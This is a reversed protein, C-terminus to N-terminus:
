PSIKWAFGFFNNASVTTIYSGAAGIGIYGGGRNSFFWAYTGSSGPVFVDNSGGSPGTFNVALWGDTNSPSIPVRLGGHANLIGNVTTTSAALTIGALDVGSAANSQLGRIILGYNNGNNGNIDSINLIATTSGSQNWAIEDSGFNISRITSVGSLRTTGSSTLTNVAVNGGTIAVANANQTSMTGLANTAITVASNVFATTAIQTTSTGNAANPATPVGTFAPSVSSIAGSFTATSGGLAGTLTTTGSVTLNGNVDFNGVSETNIANFNTGDCYVWVTAGNPIAVSSGSAARINVAYGGTTSNKIVYLKEVLPAIIDRVANNTGGVVLVANRSEDSVGNFSSLTYNADTMTINVVGTIAQELLTGLNTNTTQGWIGSQDGDGILELKLSPSFTSAM